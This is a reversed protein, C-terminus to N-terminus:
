MLSSELPFHSMVDHGTETILVQEELKVGEGGGFEGIYSEVCVTMGPMLVGDQAYPENRDWDIGPWEDVMGVGHLISGYCQRRFRDPIQWAKDRYERFTCGPRLLECNHAIQEVAFRYLERQYSTPKQPGCHFTRSIDACYGHPGVLDTDFCVLEGSQIRRDSSEQFWPNTRPGASLLRTEIWEGGLAINVYHLEAWLQNETIGPRLADHMRQMGLETVDIANRMCAIEEASKISRAIEMIPQGEVAVLGARQLAEYGLLDGGDVAVRHEGRGMLAGVVEAIEAAWLQSLVKGHEAAYQYEYCRALRREGVALLQPQAILCNENPYEFLVAQGEAPVVCYRGQNHLLWVTMNRSDTAYRINVPDSLLAAACANARLERQVRDYRYSRLADLDIARLEPSQESDLM